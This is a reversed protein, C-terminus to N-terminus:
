EAILQGLLIVGRGRSGDGHDIEGPGDRREGFDTATQDSLFVAPDEHHGRDGRDADTAVGIEVAAGLGPEISETLSHGVRQVAGSDRQLQQARPTTRVRIVFPWAGRGKV